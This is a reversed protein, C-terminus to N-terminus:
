SAYRAQFNHFSKQLANILRNEAVTEGPVVNHEWLQKKHALLREVSRSERNIVFFASHASIDRVLGLFGRGLHLALDTTYYKAELAVIVKHSRPAVLEERDRCVDAEDKLLVSVDCEHLVASHGSVRVGLHAELSPCGPFEVVAYGYNRRRSNLYGPSTRFVFPDPIGNGICALRVTAREVRAARLVLSFLYAEYLDNVASAVTLSPLTAAGIAQQIEALLNPRIAL